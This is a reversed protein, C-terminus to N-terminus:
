LRTLNENKRSLRTTTVAQEGFNNNKRLLRKVYNTQEKQRCRSCGEHDKKQRAYCIEFDYWQENKICWFLKAAHFEPCKTTNHLVTKSIIKCYRFEKERITTNAFAECYGCIL